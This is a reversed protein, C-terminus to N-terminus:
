LAKEARKWIKHSNSIHTGNVVKPAGSVSDDGRRVLDYLTRIETLHPFMASLFNAVRRPDTIPSLAVEIGVLSHQTKQIVGIKPVSTADFTMALHRLLPCSKAFASLGQLTVRSPVHTYSAATLFIREIRSWAAAMDLIVSDDLDFGVPHSLSVAVLNTFSLLPRLIDGGVTYLSYQDASLTRPFLVDTQAVLERLHSHSCHRALTAYSHRAITMTPRSRIGYMTICLLSCTGLSSIITIADDM